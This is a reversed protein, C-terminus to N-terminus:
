TQPSPLRCFKGNAYVYATLPGAAPRAFATWGTNRATEPIATAVDMRIEGNIGYGVTSGNRDVVTILVTGSHSQLTAWGQLREGLSTTEIRDFMGMCFSDDRAQPDFIVSGADRLWDRSYFGVRSQKAYTALDAWGSPLDIPVLGDSQALNGLGIKDALAVLKADQVSTEGDQARMQGIAITSALLVTVIAVSQSSVWIEAAATDYVLLALLLWASLITTAHVPDAAGLLGSGAHLWGSYLASLVIYGYGSLLFARYSTIQRQQYLRFALWIYLMSLVIGLAM